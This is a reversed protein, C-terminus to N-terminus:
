TWLTWVNWPTQLLNAAARKNLPPKVKILRFKSYNYKDLIDLVDLKRKIIKTTPHEEGLVKKSIELAQEYYPRTGEHDGMAQLLYEM